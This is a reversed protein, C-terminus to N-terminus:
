HYDFEILEYAFKFIGPL